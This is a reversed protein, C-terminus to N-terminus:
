ERDCDFTSVGADSFFVSQIEAGPTLAVLDENQCVDDRRINEITYQLIAKGDSGLPGNGITLVYDRWSTCTVIPSSKQRYVRIPTGFLTYIRVYNASTTAVIYSESLAISIVSEGLPLSVKWDARNTWTEHPRYFLMAPHAESPNCSFLTGKEGLCAKDYSFNDTFHFERQFERDYFEVTVTHHTDQDVIWVFGILNLCLYRRNGRWPTSGPQFALHHPQRVREIAHRKTAYPADFGDLHGNTRKGYGNVEEHYGAGDDDVVFGDLSEDDPGLIEDLSDPTGPRTPRTINRDKSSVGNSREVNGFSEGLPDHIFPAPQLTKELIHLHQEPVFDTHIYLEGEANTYSLINRTPHWSFALVVGRVNDISDQDAM